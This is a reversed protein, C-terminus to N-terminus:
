RVWRLFYHFHGSQNNGQIEVYTCFKPKRNANDDFLGMVANEFQRRAQLFKMTSRLSLIQIRFLSSISFHALFLMVKPSFKCGELKPLDETMVVEYRQLYYFKDCHILIINMAARNSTFSSQLLGYCNKFLYIVIDGFKSSIEKKASDYFIFRKM